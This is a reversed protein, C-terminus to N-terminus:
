YGTSAYRPKRRNTIGMATQKLHGERIVEMATALADPYDDHARGGPKFRLLQSELKSSKLHEVHFVSHARYKPELTAIREAKTETTGSHKVEKTPVYLLEGQLWQKFNEYFVKGPGTAEVAVSKPRWKENLEVITKMIRDHRWQGGCADMVYYTRKSKEGKTGLVVIATDDGRKVTADGSATDVGIYFTLGQFVPDMHDYTGVYRFDDQTFYAAESPIPNNEYQCSFTYLNMSHRLRDIEDVPLISEFLPEGPQAHGFFEEDGQQAEWGFYGRPPPVEWSSPDKSWQELISAACDDYDWRTCVWVLEGGPNLIPWLLRLYDKVKGIGEPTNNTQGQLDDAIILDYHRGQSSVDVGGAMMTPEKRPRNRATITFKGAQWGKEGKLSMGYLSSIRDSKLYEGVQSIADLSLSKEESTFFVAIDPNRLIRWAAYSQVLTTKATGRPLALFRKRRATRPDLYAPWPRQLWDCIPKIEAKPRIVGHGEGVRLVETNFYYLDTLALAKEAELVDEVSTEAAVKQLDV